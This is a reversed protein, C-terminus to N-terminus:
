RLNMFDKLRYQEVRIAQIFSALHNVDYFGYRIGMVDLNANGM